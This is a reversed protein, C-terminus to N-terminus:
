IQHYVPFHTGSCKFSVFLGDIDFVYYFHKIINSLDEVIDIYVIGNSWTWRGM